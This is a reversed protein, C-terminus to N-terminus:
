SRNLLMHSKLLDNSSLASLLSLEGALVVSSIIKALQRSNDGIKLKNEIGMIKLCEKQIPLDTGGGITGIELSPMTVSLHLNNDDTKELLTM